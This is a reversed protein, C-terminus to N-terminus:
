SFAIGVKLLVEESAIIGGDDMYWKNYVPKLQEIKTVLSALACCFYLPGLPDGQQVGSTSHFVYKHDFLLLSPGM